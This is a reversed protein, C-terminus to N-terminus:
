RDNISSCAINKLPWNCAAQAEQCVTVTPQTCARGGTCSVSSQGPVTNAPNAVATVTASVSAQLKPQNAVNQNAPSAPCLGLSTSGAIPLLGLFELRVNSVSPQASVIHACLSAVLAITVIRM